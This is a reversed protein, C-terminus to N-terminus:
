GQRLRSCIDRRSKPRCPLLTHGYGTGDREVRAVEEAVLGVAAEVGLRAYQNVFQQAVDGVLVAYGGYDVGVVHVAHEAYALVDDKDVLAIALPNAVHALDVGRRVLGEVVEYEGRAEELFNAFVYGLM